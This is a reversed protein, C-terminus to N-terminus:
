GSLVEKLEKKTSRIGEIENNSQAENIILKHFYPEIVFKPLKSILTSIKSSNILVKNNILMLEHTNVYFLPYADNMKQGKRFGKITFPTLYSGYSSKRKNLEDKYYNDDKKYFVKSLKEYEV